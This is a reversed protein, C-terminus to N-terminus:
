DWWKWDSCCNNRKSRRNNNSRLGGGFWGVKVGVSAIWGNFADREYNKTDIGNVWRYGVAGNLRLFRTVNMELGVEPTAVFVNDIIDSGETIWEEWDEQDFNDFDDVSIDVAGWGLRVNSYTHIVAGQNGSYGLSLGGHALDIRDIHDNWILDDYDAGALAYAGVSFNGMVLGAAAGASANSGNVNNGFEVLPQAYAGFRKSGRNFLTNDQAFLSLTMCCALAFVISKKM